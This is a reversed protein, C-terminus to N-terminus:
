YQQLFFLIKSKQERNKIKSIVQKLDNEFHFIKMITLLFTM